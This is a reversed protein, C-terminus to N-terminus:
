GKYKTGYLSLLAAKAQAPGIIMSESPTTLTPVPKGAAIDEALAVMSPGWQTFGM